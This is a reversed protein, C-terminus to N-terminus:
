SVWINPEDQIGVGRSIPAIRNKATWSLNKCTKALEPNKIGKAFEPNENVRPCIPVDPSNFCM